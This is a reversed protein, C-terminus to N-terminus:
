EADTRTISFETNRNVIEAMALPTQQNEQLKDFTELIKQYSIKQDYIKDLLGYSGFNFGPATNRRLLPLKRQKGASSINM